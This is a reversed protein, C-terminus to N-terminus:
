ASRWRPLRELAVRQQAHPELGPARVLDARVQLRDVVGHGAVRLVAAGAHEPELALEQVGLVQGELMGDRPSATSTREGSGASRAAASRCAESFRPLAAM